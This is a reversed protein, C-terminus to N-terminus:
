TCAVTHITPNRITTAALPWWTRFVDRTSVPPGAPEVPAAPELSAPELLAIPDAPCESANEFRPTLPSRSPPLMIRM